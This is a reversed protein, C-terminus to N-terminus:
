HPTVSFLPVFPVWAGRLWGEAKGSEVFLRESQKYDEEASEFQKKEFEIRGREMYSVAFYEAAALGSRARAEIAQNCMDSAEEFRLESMLLKAMNSHTNSFDPHDPNLKATRIDLSREYSNRCRTLDNLEYYVCGATNCHYAYILGDKDLCADYAIELMHLCEALEGIEYQYWAANKLLEDFDPSSKLPKKTKKAKAFLNAMADAHHYWKSCERWLGHLSKPGGFKPFRYNVLTASTDFARQLDESSLGYDSYQFASQVLRHLSLQSGKRKILAVRVLLDVCDDLRRTRM